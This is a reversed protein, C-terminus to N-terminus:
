SICCVASNQQSKVAEQRQLERTIRRRIGELYLSRDFQGAGLPISVPRLLILSINYIHPSFGFDM